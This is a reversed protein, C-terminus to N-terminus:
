CGKTNKTKQSEILRTIEEVNEVHFLGPLLRSLHPEEEASQPDEDILKAFMSGLLAEALATRTIYINGM